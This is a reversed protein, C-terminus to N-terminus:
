VGSQGAPPPPAGPSPLAGPPRLVVLQREEGLGPVDLTDIREISWGPPLSALEAGSPRGKMALVCTEPGCLPAVSRRPDRARRLRARGRHRVARRARLARRACPRGDVNKLGLVRAAHTVFRIKKGNSDILTFHRAPIAIALPLGPFGAGTGVDAIRTGRM